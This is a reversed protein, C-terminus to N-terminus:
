PYAEEAYTDPVWNEFKTYRGVFTLPFDGFPGNRQKAIIVEAIGADEPAQRLLTEAAARTSIFPTTPAHRLFRAVAVPDFHDPHEHSCWVFDVPTLDSIGLQLPPYHFWSDCYAPDELWPDMLLRTGGAEVMIAAHGLYTVEM